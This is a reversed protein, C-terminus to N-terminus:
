EEVKHGPCGTQHDFGECGEGVPILKWGKALCERLYDRVMKDTWEAGNDEKIFGRMSRKGYFRLAGAIDIAMHRIEKM